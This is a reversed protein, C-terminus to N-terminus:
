TKGYTNLFFYKCFVNAIALEICQVKFSYSTWISYAVVNLLLYYWSISEIRALQEMYTMGKYGILAGLYTPMPYLNILVLLFKGFYSLIM